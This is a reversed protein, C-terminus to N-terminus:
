FGDIKAYKCVTLHSQPRLLTYYPSNKNIEELISFENGSFAISYKFKAEKADWGVLITTKYEVFFFYQYLKCM